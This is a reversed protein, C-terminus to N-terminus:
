QMNRAVSISMPNALFVNVILLKVLCAKSPISFLARPPPPINNYLGLDLRGDSLVGRLDSFLGRLDFRPHSLHLDFHWLPYLAIQTHGDFHAIYRM